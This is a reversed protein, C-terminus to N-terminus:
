RLIESSKKVLSRSQVGRFITPNVVTADDGVVKKIGM